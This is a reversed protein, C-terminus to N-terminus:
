KPTSIPFAGFITSSKAISQSCGLFLGTSPTEFSGLKCEGLTALTFAHLFKDPGFKNCFTNLIGLSFLQQSYGIEHLEYPPSILKLLTTCTLSALVFVFIVSTALLACSTSHMSLQQLKLADPRICLNMFPVVQHQSFYVCLIM